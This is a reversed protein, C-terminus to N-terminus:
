LARWYLPALLLVALTFGIVIGIGVAILLLGFGGAPDPHTM